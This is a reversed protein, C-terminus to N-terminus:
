LPSERDWGLVLFFCSLKGQYFSQELFVPAIQACKGLLVKRTQSSPEPCFNCRALTHEFLDLDDKLNVMNLIGKRTCADLLDKTPQLSFTRFLQGNLTLQRTRWGPVQVQQNVKQYSIRMSHRM